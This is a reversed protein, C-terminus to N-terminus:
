KNLVSKIESYLDGEIVYRETNVNTVCDYVKILLEKLRNREKTREDASDMEGKIQRELEEIREKQREVLNKYQDAYLEAAENARQMLTGNFVMDTLMDSWSLYNRGYTISNHKTAVIDCCEKYTKM